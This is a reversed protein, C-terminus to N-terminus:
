NTWELEARQVWLWWGEDLDGAKSLHGGESSEIWVLVKAWGWNRHLSLLGLDVKHRLLLIIWVVVIISLSWLTILVLTLVLVISVVLFVGLWSEWLLISLVSVLLLFALFGIFALFALLVLSLLLLVDGLLLLSLLSWFSIRLCLNDISWGLNGLSWDFNCLWNSRL